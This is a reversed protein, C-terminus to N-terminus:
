SNARTLEVSRRARVKEGPRYKKRMYDARKKKFETSHSIYRKRCAESCSRQHGTIAYFWAKCERCRRYRLIRASSGIEMLLGPTGGIEMMLLFQVARNEETDRARTQDWLLRQGLSHYYRDEVTPRWQYRILLAQLERLANTFKRNLEEVKPNAFRCLPLSCEFGKQPIHLRNSADLTEKRVARLGVAFGNRFIEARCQEATILLELIREVRKAATTRPVREILDLIMERAQPASHERQMQRKTPFVLWKDRLPRSQTAM